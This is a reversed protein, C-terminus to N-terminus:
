CLPWFPWFSFSFWGADRGIQFTWLTLANFAVELSGAAGCSHLPLARGPPPLSHAPCASMFSVIARARRGTLPLDKDDGGRHKSNRRAAKESYAAEEPEVDLGRRVIPACCPPAPLEPDKPNGVFEIFDLVPTDGIFYDRSNNVCVPHCPRLEKRGQEYEGKQRPQDKERASYKPEHAPLHGLRQRDRSGDDDAHQERQRRWGRDPMATPARSWRECM